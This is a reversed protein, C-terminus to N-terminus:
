LVDDYVENASSYTTPDIAVRYADKIALRRLRGTGTLLGNSVTFPEKLVVYRQIRAYDPLQQNVQYIVSSVQEATSPSTLVM